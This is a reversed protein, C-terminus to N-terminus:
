QGGTYKLYIELQRKLEMPDDIYTIDYRKGNILMRSNEATIQENLKVWSGIFVHTSEQIKSNFSTYKAEGAQLDLWGKCTQVTVWDQVNEGIENQTTKYVQIAATLNGGIGKM